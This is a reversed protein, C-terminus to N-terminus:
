LVDDAGFTHVKGAHKDISLEHASNVYFCGTAEDIFVIEPVYLSIMFNSFLLHSEIYKESFALKAEPRRSRFGSKKIHLRM